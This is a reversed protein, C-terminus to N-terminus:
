EEAIVVCVSKGSWKIFKKTQPVGSSWVTKRCTRSTNAMYRKTPRHTSPMGAVVISPTM